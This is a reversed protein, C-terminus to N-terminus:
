MPYKAEKLDDSAVLKSLGDHKEASSQHIHGRSTDVHRALMAVCWASLREENSLARDSRTVWARSM